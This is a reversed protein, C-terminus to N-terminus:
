IIAKLALYHAAVFAALLTWYDSFGPVNYVFPGTVGGQECPCELAVVYFGGDLAVSISHTGFAVRGKLLQYHLKIVLEDLLEEACLQCYRTGGVHRGPELHVPCFTKDDYEMDKQVCAPCIFYGPLDITTKAM